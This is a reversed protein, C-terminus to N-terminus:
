VARKAPPASRTTSRGVAAGAFTINDSISFIAAQAHPHLSAVYYTDLILTQAMNSVEPLNLIFQIFKTSKTNAHYLDVRCLTMIRHYRTLYIYADTHREITYLQM